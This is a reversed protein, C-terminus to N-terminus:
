SWTPQNLLQEFEKAPVPRSYHFGQGFECNLENLYDVHRQEEIGEAVIKLRLAKAMAIIVNVLERDSDNEFVNQMFSRDIKLRDFPFKQLYSLASYGTGFDDITLKTGLARLNDLMDVLEDDHNFLLSETVEVDFQEAPLGSEELSQRIFALLRDCYRFQVSSFNVSVFLPSISQWQAAQYCAQQIAFEGLQHILGNKEAISIFEEPNVFGFKEDNWRMLAEAGVIKGSKLEIIPQYYMELLQNSIANRLRSELDLYRQLDQNMNHNYFCFADRGDQKVRYMAMDACALLQEANDGDDPFVSMGVSGTLFFEHNNWVFPDSFASLVSSAVRKATDNDPLDPIVLLFEDGGIRALLDTKRAVNQLRQASLKLIEDGVFHGMSDNIQKFHDLDIFMVLVKSGTRSARILELALRESGYSRNPLETLTDYKAQFALEKESAKRREIEKTLKHNQQSLIDKRKKEEELKIKLELKNNNAIFAYCLAIVIMVALISLGFIFLRSTFIDRENLPEFWAMLKFHHQEVPVEFYIKGDLVKSLFHNEDANTTSNKTISDWVVMEVDKIKLVMRSYSDEHEQNTLQEIVIDKNIDAILFAVPKGSFKVQKIVQIRINDGDRTACVEEPHGHQTMLDHIDMPKLDKPGATVITTGDSGVLTLKNYINSSNILKGDIKEDFRRKLNILSAGLGYEMSMGSALNAFFTQVTKDSSLNDVDESAITFLNDLTSAYSKVKLDLERYQSDKLKNQGLSTVVILIALYISVIIASITIIKKSSIKKVAKKM